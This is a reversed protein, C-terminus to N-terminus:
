GRSPALRFELLGDIGKLTEVLKSPDLPSTAHLVLEYEFRSGQEGLHFSWDSVRYGHAEMIGQINTTDPADEAPFRLTLHLLEQHPLASEISRVGSMLVVTIVAVSIAAGYFGLGIIIGIAATIWISAATSLGHISFGNRMIVGAGLFGIGTMIGQMVRTPDALATTGQATGGFWMAPYANVVTLATSAVCVLAYTRIGAARGHYSREYGIICGVALAGLLHLTILGNTALEGLSWYSM